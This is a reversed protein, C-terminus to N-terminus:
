GIIYNQTIGTLLIPNSNLLVQVNKYGIQTRLEEEITTMLSENNKEKQLTDFDEQDIVGNNNFDLLNSYHGDESERGYFQSMVEFPLSAEPVAEVGGRFVDGFGIPRIYIPIQAGLNSERDYAVLFIRQTLPNDSQRILPARYKYYCRGSTRRAKMTDMNIIPFIQGLGTSVRGNEGLVYVDVSPNLVENGEEDIAEIMFDATDMGDASLYSSSTNLRFAQTFQEETDIYLFGTHQSNVLPNLEVEKALRQNSFRNGEQIVSVEDDNHNVLHIKLSDYATDENFEVNYSNKLQYTVSVETGYLDHKQEDTLDLYVGNGKVYFHNTSGPIDYKSKVHQAFFSEGSAFEVVVLYEPELEEYSVYLVDENRYLFKETNSKQYHGTEHNFFYQRTMPGKSNEVLIPSQDKPAMTTEVIPEKMYHMPSTYDAHFLVPAEKLFEELTYWNADEFLYDLSYIQIGQYNGSWYPESALHILDFDGGITGEENINETVVQTEKNYTLLRHNDGIWTWVISCVIPAIEDAPNPIYPIFNDGRVIQPKSNKPYSVWMKTANNPVTIVQENDDTAIREVYNLSDDFFSIRWYNDNTVTNKSFALPEGPIVDIMERMTDSHESGNAESPNPYFSHALLYVGQFADKLIVLNVAEEVSESGYFALSPLSIKNNKGELSIENPTMSLTFDGIKLLHEKKILTQKRSISLVITGSERNINDKSPITATVM